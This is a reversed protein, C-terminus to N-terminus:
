LGIGPGIEPLLPDFLDFPDFPMIRSRKPIPPLLLPLPLLLEVPGPQSWTGFKVQSHLQEHLAGFGGGFGGGDGSGKGM